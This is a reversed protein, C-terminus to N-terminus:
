SNPGIAQLARMSGFEDVESRTATAMKALAGNSTTLLSEVNSVISEKHLGSRVDLSLSIGCHEAGVSAGIQNDAVILGISPVGLAAAEWLSSGAALIALSSSALETIYDAQHIVRARPLSQVVDEIQKRQSNTPGVAVCLEIDLDKLALVIPGTLNLFDSGGMAVFVKGAVTNISQKTAERVERRLLAYQLGLLLKPNGSLQAYMETTAHPNQNIVVSPALAKTEVNDDIVIFSTARNELESFFEREFKYGDVVLVSGNLSLTATADAAGFPLCQLDVVTIGCKRAEERMGAPLDVSALVVDFAADLLAEGLALSRMVHGVGNLGSADARLVAVKRDVM